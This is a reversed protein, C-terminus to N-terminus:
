RGPRRAREMRHVELVGDGPTQAPDQLRGVTEERVVGLEDRRDLPRLGLLRSRGPRMPDPGTRTPRDDRDPGGCRDAWLGPVMPPPGIRYGDSGRIVGTRALFPGPDHRGSDVYIMDVNTLMIVAVLTSIPSSGRRRRSVPSSASHQM